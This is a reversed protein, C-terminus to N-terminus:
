LMNEDILDRRLEEAKQAANRRPRPPAMPVLPPEPPDTPQVEPILEHHLELPILKSLPRMYETDATRVIASRIIGDNGKIVQTVIGLPYHTRIKNETELLVLDGVTIQCSEDKACNLHREKLSLLYSKMWLNEYKRLIDSLRAYQVRLDLFEGYPVDEGFSNLPPFLNVSRGYILHSPSLYEERIDESLYTLPRSNVVCEIECLITQLESFSVRKKHLSKNLCMKVCGILREYFGGSWPSRPTIFKWVINQDKMYSRVEPEDQIELLFREAGKFNAGNDSIVISPVGFQSAFRRFALLFELTSLSRCLELHVARSVTCTFLCVYVKESIDSTSTPDTISIAGTYDVGVANFPRVYKVREQPLPPPGPQSINKGIVKKCLVCKGIVNKIVARAKSIWFQQRICMLLTGLGCHHHHIHYHRIILKTLPHKAPLYIPFQAEPSLDSNQLRSRCCILCDENMYLDLQKILNKVETPPNLNQDPRSLFRHLTPFSQLQALRVCAHLANLKFKCPFYRSCFQMIMAVIRTVKTLSSFKSMDFVDVQPEIVDPELLIERVVVTNSVFEKQPPYNAPNLLFSPGHKWLLNNSLQSVSVGRTLIDSPNQSSPVYLISFKYKSQTKCIEAVRNRVFVESSKNHYVWSIAVESDCWLTCTKFALKENILLTKALRSALALALLESKPITLPPDPTVRAKSLLLGSSKDGSVVVYAALGYAVQSSDCFIHLDSDKPVIVFRPFKIESVQKLNKCISQFELALSESVQEDWSLGAKWLKQIYLKGKILVPSLLGLPDFISSIVSLALRKTIPHDVCEEKWVKKGSYVSIEDSITNWSMGLVDVDSPELKEWDIEIDENFGVDNSIWSQLPMSADALISNILPYEYRLEESTLYTRSFNDVYFHSMLTGALPNSHTELHHTLTKQLLFPSSTTGFLVVKFRYTVVKQLTEDEFWLFRCFDRCHPLIGIRLFAKSIDAIVAVPSTRFEVLVDVLKSTLSPGTLLCENLSKSTPNPKSSANFVVRVPTTPSNKYIPHHPLYHTEGDVVVPNEVKEIFGLDLYERFVQCYQRYLEPHINFSKSLSKLQGYAKRYNSAPRDASKFPLEVFYKDDVKQCTSEFHHLSQFEEPTFIESTIGITDLKWLNQIQDLDSDLVEIGMRACFTHHVHVSNVYQSSVAWKPIPGFIISGAPSSLLTVGSHYSSNTVFKAYYDAGIILGIDGVYDSDIHPDALKIGKGKLTKIVSAIGPIHMTTNVQDYVVAFIVIRQTGIRIVLRVVDCWLQQVQNGFPILKLLIRHVPKLNLRRAVLSHIFTRQSGSDLFIRIIERIGSGSITVLATPLATSCLSTSDQAMSNVVNTQVSNVVDASNVSVKTKSHTHSIQSVDDPTQNDPSLNSSKGVDCGATRKKTNSVTVTNVTTNQKILKICMFTHHKGQCHRCEPTIKCNVARHGKKMCVFCLELTKVRDRRSDFSSFKACYRSDHIESCFVCPKNWTSESRHSQNGSKSNPKETKSSVVAQKSVTSSKGNSFNSKPKSSSSSNHIKPKASQDSLSHSCEMVKILHGIGDSLHKLTLDYTNYKNFLFELTQPSLKKAIIDKILGDDCPTGTAAEIQMLLREFTLHFDTLDSLTHTPTEINMLELHLQQLLRKNDAFRSKLLKLAVNYNDGTIPLGEITRFAKEKLYNRLLNFKIVADIDHRSDIISSFSDWFSKWQSLEGSFYPIKIEPLKPYPLHKTPVVTSLNPNSPAVNQQGGSRFEALKADIQSKIAARVSVSNRTLARHDRSVNELDDPNISDQCSSWSARFLQDASSLESELLQLSSVSPVPDKALECEVLAIIDRLDLCKIQYLHFAKSEDVQPM